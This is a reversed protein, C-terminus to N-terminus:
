INPQNDNKTKNKKQWKKLKAAEWVLYIGDWVLYITVRMGLM